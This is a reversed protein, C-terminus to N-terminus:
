NVLKVRAKKQTRKKIPGSFDISTENLISVKFEYTSNASKCDNANDILQKSIEYM